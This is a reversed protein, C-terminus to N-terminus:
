VKARAFFDIGQGVGDFGAPFSRFRCPNAATTSNVLFGDRQRVPEVEREDVGGEFPIDKERRPSSVKQRSSDLLFIRLSPIRDSREPKTCIVVLKGGSATKCVIDALEAM